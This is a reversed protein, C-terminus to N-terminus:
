DDLGMEIQVGPKYEPVAARRTRLTYLTASAIAAIGVWELCLRRMDVMCRVKHPTTIFAWGINRHTVPSFSGASGIDPDHTWEEQIWPPYLVSAVVLLAFVWVAILQKRHM